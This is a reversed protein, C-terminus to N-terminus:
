IDKQSIIEFTCTGEENMQQVLSTKAFAAGPPFVGGKGKNALKNTETLVIIGALVLAVCTSGYGPNRGKVKATITKDVPTTYQDDKNALKEKWGEGYFDISFWSNQVTEESPPKKSFMGGSFIEPYNLLLKRGFSFKTLIGFIAAFLSFVVVTAFSPLAFYTAVQIPRQNEVEYMYNQTRRAVSRDSGLFPLIWGEMHQSKHPLLKFKQKPPYTPAKKFKQYFRKRIDNLESRNALSHVASEWTTYNVSSGKGGGETWAKLFAEVSNLTGEFHEQLYRIGMDTPISDLGCASIAYVGKEVAADHQEVQVREMYEPEGSVDVHHTGAEICAKVVSDGLFRYPGVCNIVLRTRKAMNVLSEQSSVDAIVVPINDLNVEIKEGMDKLVKRLREESRGAVGWTLNRGKEKSLKNIYPICHLGTFGTAGFILIDLRDTM